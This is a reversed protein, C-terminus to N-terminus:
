WETDENEDPVYGGVEIISVFLEVTLQAEGDLCVTIVFSANTPESVNGATVTFKGESISSLSLHESSSKIEYTVDGAGSVIVYDSLTIEKKGGSALNIHKRAGDVESVNGNETDNEGPDDDNTNDDTTDNNTNDDGPNTDGGGDVKQDDDSNINEGPNTVDTTDGSNIDSNGDDKNSKKCGFASLTFTALILIASITKLLYTKKM